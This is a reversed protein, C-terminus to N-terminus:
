PVTSFYSERLLYGEFLHIIHRDFQQLIDTLSCICTSSSGPVAYKYQISLVRIYLFDPKPRIIPTSSFQPIYIFTIGSSGVYPKSSM